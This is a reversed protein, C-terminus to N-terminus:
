RHGARDQLAPQLFTEQASKRCPLAPRFFAGQPWRQLFTQMKNLDLLLVSIIIGEISVMKSYITYCKLGIIKIQIFSNEFIQDEITILIM